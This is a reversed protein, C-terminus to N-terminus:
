GESIQKVLAGCKPCRLRGDDEVDPYDADCDCAIVQGIWRCKTCSMLVETIRRKIKSM